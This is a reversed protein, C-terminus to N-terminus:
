QVRVMEVASGLGIEHAAEIAVSCDSYTRLNALPILQITEVARNYAMFTPVTKIARTVERCIETRLPEHIIIRRMYGMAFLLGPSDRFHVTTVYDLFYRVKDLAVVKFDLLYKDGKKLGVLEQKPGPQDIVMELAGDSNLSAVYTANGDTFKWKGAISKFLALSEEAKVQEKEANNKPALASTLQEYVAQQEEDFGIRKAIDLTDKAEKIKEASANPSELISKGESLMRWTKSKHLRQKALEAVSSKADAELSTEYHEEACLWDKLGRCADGLYFHALANGPNKKLGTELATRAESYHKQKLLDWGKAFDAEGTDAAQASRSLATLGLAVVLCYIAIKPFPVRKM